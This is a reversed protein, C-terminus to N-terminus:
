ESIENMIDAYQSKDPKDVQAKTDVLETEVIVTFSKNGNGAYDARFSRKVVYKGKVEASGSVELASFSEDGFSDATSQLLSLVYESMDEGEVQYEYTNKHKEVNYMKEYPLAIINTLDNINNLASEADIPSFYRVGPMSIYYNGDSYIYEGTTEAGVDGEESTSSSETSVKYRMDDKGMNCVSINQVVETSKVADGGDALVTTTIKMEFDTLGRTNSFAKEYKATCGSLASVSLIVCLFACFFKKM